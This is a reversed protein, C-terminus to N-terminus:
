GGRQRWRGAATRCGSGLQLLLLDALLFSSDLLAVWRPDMSKGAGAFMMAFRTRHPEPDAGVVFASAVMRVVHLEDNERGLCELTLLDKDFSSLGDLLERVDDANAGNVERGAWVQEAQEVSLQTGEIHTTHHAELM